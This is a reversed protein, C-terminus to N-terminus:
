ERRDAGWGAGLGSFYGDPSGVLAGDIWIEPNLLFPQGCGRLADAMEAEPPSAAGDAADAIAQRLLATGNLPEGALLMALEEPTTLEDAVAGLVLGRVDRLTGLRLAGDLAVRPAPAVRVDEWQWATLEPLAACRRVRVLRTSPRRMGAPILVQAGPLTPVWRMRLARAAILGTLLSSPGAYSTAIRALVEGPLADTHAVYYGRIPRQWRGAAVERRALDEDLGAAALQRPTLFGGHQGAIAAARAAERERM